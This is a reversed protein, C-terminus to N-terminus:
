SRGSRRPSSSISDDPSDAGGTIASAKAAFDKAVKEIVDNMAPKAFDAAVVEKRM